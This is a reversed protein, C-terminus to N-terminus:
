SMDALLTCHFEVGTYKALIVDVAGLSSTTLEPFGAGGGFLFNAPPTIIASTSSGQTFIFMYEAGDTPNTVLVSATGDYTALVSFANGLTGDFTIDATTTAEPLVVIPTFAAIPKSSTTSNSTSDYKMGNIIGFNNALTREVRGTKNQLSDTM